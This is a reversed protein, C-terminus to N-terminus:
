GMLKSRYEKLYIAKHKRKYQMVWRPHPLPIIESFWGYEENLEKFVKYNKGQGLSYAKDMICFRSIQYEIAQVMHPKVAEYLEPSDYYNYNRGDKTFGLPCLSSIYFRGYFAEVGGLEDIMEYIFISSLEFKKDIDNPIGCPDELHKPDTFPVGTQGAGFRGPNIGFLFHRSQTDSFYKSYFVQLLHLIREEDFPYILDVNEPLVWDNKLGAFFDLIHQAFNM